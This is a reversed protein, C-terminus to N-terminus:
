GAQLPVRHVVRYRSGGRAPESSVLLLDAPRWWPGCRQAWPAPPDAPAGPGPRRRRRLVTVHPVFREGQRGAVEVLKRLEAEPDAEVGAWRV